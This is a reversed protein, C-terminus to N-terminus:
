HGGWQLTFAKSVSYLIWGAANLVSIILYVNFLIKIKGRMSWVVSWLLIFSSISFAFLPVFLCIFYILYWWDITSLFNAAFIFGANSILTLVLYITIKLNM